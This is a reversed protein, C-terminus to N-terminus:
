PNFWPRSTCVLERHNLQARVRVLHKIFGKISFKANFVTALMFPHEPHKRKVTRETEQESVDQQALKICLAAEQM